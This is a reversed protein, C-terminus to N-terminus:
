FPKDDGDIPVTTAVYGPVVGLSLWDRAIDLFQRDDPAGGGQAARHLRWVTHRGTTADLAGVEVVAGEALGLCQAFRQGPDDRRQVVTWRWSRNGVRRALADLQAWSRVPAYAGALADATYELDVPISTSAASRSAITSTM